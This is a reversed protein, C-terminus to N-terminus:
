HPYNFGDRSHSCTHILLASLCGCWFGQSFEGYKHLFLHGLLLDLPFQWLLLFILNCSILFATTILALAWLLAYYMSTTLLLWIKSTRSHLAFFNVNSVQGEDNATIVFIYKGLTGPQAERVQLPISSCQSDVTWIMIGRPWSKSISLLSHGTLFINRM